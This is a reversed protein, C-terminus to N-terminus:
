SHAEQIPPIPEAQKVLKKIGGAQKVLPFVKWVMWVLALFFTVIVFILFFFITQFRALSSEAVSISWITVMKEQPPTLPTEPPVLNRARDGIVTVNEYDLNPISSAVLRKMKSVLNANPDDLIGNHKIFVASTIKGKNREPNIPDEEPFTVLVDADIVGDIKRLTNAIQEALGQQFRVKEKMQSPVLEGGSFIGLLNQGRKRPLGAINLLAMAQTSQQDVVEIDFLPATPMVGMNNGQTNAVKNVRIGKTDLYVMIENAEKEEIGNVIIKSSSCGGLLLGLILILYAAKKSIFDMEALM